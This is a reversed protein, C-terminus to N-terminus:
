RSRYDRMDSMLGRRGRLEPACIGKQRLDGRQGVWIPRLRYGRCSPLPPDWPALAARGQWEAPAAARVWGTRGGGLPAPEWGFHYCEVFAGGIIAGQLGGGQEPTGLRSRHRVTGGDGGGARGGGRVPHIERPSCVVFAWGIIAGQLGGGQEPTGLCSCHRVTGGNGRGARGGGRVPHIERPSCVVFAWGIIAGQWAGRQGVWIPRPRYGGGPLDPPSDGSIRGAQLPSGGAGMGHARGGLPRAGLWFPLM